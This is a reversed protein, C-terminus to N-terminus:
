FLLIVLLISHSSFVLLHSHFVCSVGLLFIPNRPPLPSPCQLGFSCPRTSFDRPSLVGRFCMFLLSGRRRRSLPVTVPSVCALACDPTLSWLTCRWLSRPDWFVFSFQSSLDTSPSPLHSWPYFLHWMFTLLPPGTGGVQMFTTVWPLALVCSPFFLSGWFLSALSALSILQTWILSGTEFSSLSCHLFIGSLFKQDRCMHTFVWLGCM